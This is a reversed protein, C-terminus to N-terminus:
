VIWWFTITFVVSFIIATYASCEVSNKSFGRGTDWYLHRIGNCLHFFFAFSWLWLLAQGIASDLFLFSLEYSSSGMSISGIWITFIVFGFSLAIGTARHMISLIMTIPWRYITLHPSLPRSRNVM